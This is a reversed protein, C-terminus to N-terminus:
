KMLDNVKNEVQQVVKKELKSQPTPYFWQIKGNRFIGQYTHGKMKLSFQHRQHYQNEFMPKVEFNQFM